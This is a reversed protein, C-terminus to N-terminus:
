SDSYPGVLSIFVSINKDRMGLYVSCIITYQIKGLKVHCTAEVNKIHLVQSLYNM